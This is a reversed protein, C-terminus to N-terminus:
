NELQIEHNRENVLQNEVRKVYYLWKSGSVGSRIDIVGQAADSLLSRVVRVM